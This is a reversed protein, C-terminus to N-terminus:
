KPLNRVSPLPLAATLDTLSCVLFIWSFVDIFRDPNLLKSFFNSLMFKSLVRDLNFFMVRVEDLSSLPFWCFFSSSSWDQEESSEEDENSPPVDLFVSRGGNSLTSPAVNRGDACFVESSYRDGTGGGGISRDIDAIDSFDTVSFIAGRGSLCVADCPKDSFM